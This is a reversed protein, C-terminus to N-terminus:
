VEDTLVGCIGDSGTLYFLPYTSTLLLSHNQSVCPLSYSWSCRKRCFNKWFIGLDALMVPHCKFGLDNQEEVVWSIMISVNLNVLFLLTHFLKQAPYEILFSGPWRMRVKVRSSCLALHPPDQQRDNVVLKSWWSRCLLSGCLPIFALM